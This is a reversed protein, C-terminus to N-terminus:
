ITNLLSLPKKKGKRWDHITSVSLSELDFEDMVIRRIERYSHGGKKFLEFVRYYVEPRHYCQSYPRTVIITSDYQSNMMKKRTLYIGSMGTEAEIAIVENDKIAIADPVIRRDLRIIRFGEDELKRIAAILLEEHKM